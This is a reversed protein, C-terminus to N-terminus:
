KKYYSDWIKKKRHLFINANKYMLEYLKLLDKKGQIDLYVLEKTKSPRIGGKIDFKERIKLIFPETALITMHLVEYSYLKGKQTTNKVYFSISGDGDFYGRLFDGYLREEINPFENLTLSKRSHVGHKKLDSVLKKNSINIRYCGKSNEFGGVDSKRIDGTFELAKAVDEIIQKDKMGLVFNNSEGVFGDAYILGLIYAKEKTNIKQFYNENLTYRNKLRYNIGYEKMVKLYTQRSVGLM